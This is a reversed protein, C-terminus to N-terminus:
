LSVPRVRVSGVFEEVSVNDDDDGDGDEGGCLFFRSAPSAPRPPIVDAIDEEEVDDHWRALGEEDEAVRALEDALSRAGGVGPMTAVPAPAPVPLRVLPPGSVSAGELEICTLPSDLPVLDPINDAAQWVFPRDEERGDHREQPPPPPMFAPSAWEPGSASMSPPTSTNAHGPVPACTHVPTTSPYAYPPGPPLPPRHFLVQWRAHWDHEWPKPPADDRVDTVPSAADPRPTDDLDTSYTSAPSDTEVALPSSAAALRRRREDERALADHLFLRKHISYTPYAIFTRDFWDCGPDRLARLDGVRPFIPAYPSYTQLRYREFWARAPPEDPVHGNTGQGPVHRTRPLAPSPPYRLTARLGDQAYTAQIDDLHDVHTRWNHWLLYRRDWFERAAAFASRSLGTHFLRRRPRGEADTDEEEDVDGVAAPLPTPPHQPPPPLYSSQSLPPPPFGDFGPEDEYDDLEESSSTPSYLSSSSASSTPSVPSPPCLPPLALTLPKPPDDEHDSDSESDSSHRIKTTSIPPLDPFVNRSSITRTLPPRRYGARSPARPPIAPDPTPKASALNSM